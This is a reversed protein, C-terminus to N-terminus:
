GAARTTTAWCRTPSRAAARRARAPVGDARRRGPRAPPEDGAPARRGGRRDRDQGDGAPRRDAAGARARPGAHRRRGADGRLAERRGGGRGRSGAPRRRGGRRPRGRGGPRGSRGGSRGARGGRLGRARRGGRPGRPDDDDAPGARRGAPGVRGALRDVLRRAPQDRQRRQPGTVLIRGRGKCRCRATTRWCCSARARPRVPWRATAGPGRRGARATDPDVYPREFIGLRFKLTLIRGVAEDIREEPISGDDVAALMNETFEGANLPIM